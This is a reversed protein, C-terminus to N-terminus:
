YFLSHSIEFAMGMEKFCLFVDMFINKNFQLVKRHLIVAFVANKMNLWNVIFEDEFHNLLLLSGELVVNM